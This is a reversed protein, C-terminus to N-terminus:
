SPLGSAAPSRCVNQMLSTLNLDTGGPSRRLGTKGGDTHFL